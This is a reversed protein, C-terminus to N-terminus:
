AMTEAARTIFSVARRTLDDYHADNLFGLDFILLM